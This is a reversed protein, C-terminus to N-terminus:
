VLWRGMLWSLMAGLLATAPITFLWAALINGVEGWRVQSLRQASGAGAISSGIVQTTSVPWGVLSALLVVGSSALQASLGHIPRIRYLRLGLTRLISLGGIATGLALSLAAGLQVWLPVAFGPQLRAAVLGVAILGMVKQADNAGHGAALLPAMLWQLRRLRLGAKPTAGQLVFLLAKMALYSAAFGAWPAVFLIVAVWALGPFYVAGAGARWWAAGVLGGILAHSTSSPLGLLWTTINWIIAAGLAALVVGLSLAAPLVIGQGITRAVAVGALLAGVLQGASILLLVRRPSVGGAGVVAAALSGSDHIGNLFGYLLGLGVVGWVAPESSM